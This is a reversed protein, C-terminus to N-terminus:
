RAAAKAIENRERLIALEACVTAILHEADKETLYLTASGHEDASDFRLKMGFTDDENEHVVAFTRVTPIYTHLHARM